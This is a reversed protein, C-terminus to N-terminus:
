PSAPKPEDSPPLVFRPRQGERRATLTLAMMVHHPTQSAMGTIIWATREVATSGGRMTDVKIAAWRTSAIVTGVPAEEIKRQMEEADPNRQPKPMMSTPEIARGAVQQAIRMEERSRLKPANFENSQNTM